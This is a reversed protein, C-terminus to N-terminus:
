LGAQAVSACDAVKEPSHLRRRVPRPGQRQGERSVSGDAGPASPSDLHLTGDDHPAPAGDDPKHEREGDRGDGSRLGVLGGEAAEIEPELAVLRHAGRRRIRGHQRGRGLLAHGQGLLPAARQQPQRPGVGALGQGPRQGRGHELVQGAGHLLLGLLDDVAAAAVEVHGDAGLEVLFAQGDGPDERPREGDAAAGVFGLDESAAQIRGGLEDMGVADQHLVHDHEVLAGQPAHVGRLGGGVGGHQGLAAGGPGGAHAGLDAGLGQDELAFRRQALMLGGQLLVLGDQAQLVRGAQPLRQRRHLLLLGVAQGAEGGGPGGARLRDQIDAHVHGVAGAIGHILRRHQAGHVLGHVVEVLVAGVVLRGQLGRDDGGDAQWPGRGLVVGNAVSLEHGVGDSGGPRRSGHAVDGVVVEVDHGERAEGVRVRALGAHPPGPDPEVAGEAAADGGMLQAVVVAQAVGVQPLGGVAADDARPGVELVSVDEVHHAAPPRAPEEVGPELGQQVPQQRALVGGDGGAAGVADPGDVVRRLGSLAPEPDHLVGALVVPHLEASGVGGVAPGHVPDNEVPPVVGVGAAVEQVGGGAGGVALVVGRDQHAAGEGVRLGADVDSGDRPGGGGGGHVHHHPQAGERAVRWGGGAQGGAGGAHRAVRRHRQRHRGAVGVAVGQGVAPHEVVPGDGGVQGGGGLAPAGRPGLQHAADHAVHHAADGGGGDRDVYARGGGEADAARHGRAARPQHPHDHAVARAGGGGVGGTGVRDGAHGAAGEAEGGALRTEGEARGGSRHRHGAGVQGATVEGRGCCRPRAVERERGAPQDVGAAGAARPTPRPDEGVGPPHERHGAHAAHGGRGLGQHHGGRHHARRGGAVDAEEGAVLSRRDGADGAKRRALGAGPEGQHAQRGVAAAADPQQVARRAGQVEHQVHVAVELLRERAWASPRRTPATSSRGATPYGSSDEWVAGVVQGRAGGPSPPNLLLFVSALSDAPM